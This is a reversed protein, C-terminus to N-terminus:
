LGEIHPGALDDFYFSYTKSNDGPNYMIRIVNYFDNNFRPDTTIDSTYIDGTWDFGASVGKFDYTVAEWTNSKQITYTLEAGTQWANGGRDTNELKLLVKDGSTGYVLLRFTTQLTLPFRYGNPLQLYANAYQANEKTYLGVNASLNPYRTADPNAVTAISGSGDSNDFKMPVLTTEGFDEYMVMLDLLYPIYNPHNEVITIVTSKVVPGYNSTVEVTVNYPGKRMYTHSMVKSYDTENQEMGDGFKWNINTIKWGAPIEVNSLSFQYENTGAGTTTTLDYTLAPKVYGKRILKYHWANNDGGTAVLDMADKTLSLVEYQGNVAGVDFCPFIPRAGSLILYIKGSEKLMQWRGPVPTFDVTYDSGPSVPNSYFPDTIRFDKVYSKGHNIYTCVFGILKLNFEDDYLNTGKKDLAAASWWLLGDSGAPGVGLHGRSLSDMVWTKGDLADAGGCLKILDEDKFYDWDTATTIHEQTATLVGARTYLNMTVTFTDALPFYGVVTDGESTSGNGFDWKALGQVNSTNTFVFRFSDDGAAIIFKAADNTALVGPETRDMETPDCGFWLLVISLLILLYINKKM